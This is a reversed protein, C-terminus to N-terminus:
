FGILCRCKALLFLSLFVKFIVQLKGFEFWRSVLGVTFVPFTMKPFIAPRFKFFLLIKHSNRSPQKVSNFTLGEMDCNYYFFFGKILLFYSSIAFCFGRSAGKMASLLSKLTGM